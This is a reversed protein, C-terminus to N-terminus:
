GHVQWGIHDSRDMQRNTDTAASRWWKSQAWTHPVLMAPCTNVSHLHRYVVLVCLHDTASVKGVEHSEENKSGIENALSGATESPTAESLAQQIYRAAVSRIAGLECHWERTLQDPKNVYVADWHGSYTAAERESM